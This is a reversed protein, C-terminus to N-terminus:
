ARWRRRPRIRQRGEDDSDGNADNEDQAIEEDLSEDDDPDDEEEIGDDDTEPGEDDQGDDHEAFVSRSGVRTTSEQVGGSGQQEGDQAVMPESSGDETYPDDDIGSPISDPAAYSKVSSWRGHRYRGKM